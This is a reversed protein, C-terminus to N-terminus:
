EKPSTAKFLADLADFKETWLQEYFSLWDQAEHLPAPQLRCFHSRGDVRRAVLGANELVRVHKSAAAFSMDFPAALDGIKREGAVLARVMARRTPDSLAHFVGDLASSQQVM